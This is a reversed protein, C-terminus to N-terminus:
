NHPPLVYDTDASWLVGDVGARADVRFGGTKVPVLVTNHSSIVPSGYHILLTGNPAYQPADDVTAKWLTRALPQTAIGGQASHQGDRAFGGWAPGNVVPPAPPPNNNSGGGGGGCGSLAVCLAM